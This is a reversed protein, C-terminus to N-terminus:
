NNKPKKINSFTSKINKWTMFHPKPAAKRLLEMTTELASKMDEPNKTSFVNHGNRKLTQQAQQNQMIASGFNNFDYTVPDRFWQNINMVLGLPYDHGDYIDLEIPLVVTFSNDYFETHGENQGRGLHIALPALLSEPTQYKGNLKMYHYGGGLEDPWFMNSEPPNSFRGSQNDADNFGFTFRLITYSAAPVKSVRLTQTEPLNTDVYWTEALMVRNGSCDELEVNSIFWQVENVLYSNGAENTYRPTDTILPTGDVEHSVIITVSGAPDSCATTAFVLAMIITLFPKIRM